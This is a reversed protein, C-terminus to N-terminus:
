DALEVRLLKSYFPGQMTLNSLVLNFEQVRLKFDVAQILKAQGPQKLKGLSIHPTFSEQQLKIGVSTVIGSLYGHLNAIESTKQAVLAVTKSQRAEEVGIRLENFELTFKQINSKQSQMKETLKALAEENVEGIFLMTMHLNSRPLLRANHLRSAVISQMNLLERQQEFKPFVATFIRNMKTQENLM